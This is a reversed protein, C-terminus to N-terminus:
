PHEIQMGFTLVTRCFKGAVDAVDVFILDTFRVASPLQCSMLVPRQTAARVLVLM